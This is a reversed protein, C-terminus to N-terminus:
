SPPTEDRLRAGRWSPRDTADQDKGRELGAHRLLPGAFSTLLPAADRLRRRTASGRAEARHAILRMKIRQATGIRCAQPLPGAFSTLLPAADRLRRKTASGRAEARHAILRMKIRAGNWDPM